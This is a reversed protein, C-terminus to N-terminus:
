WRFNVSWHALKSSPRRLEELVPRPLLDWQRLSEAPIKSVRLAIELIVLRATWWLQQDELLLDRCLMQQPSHRSARSSCCAASLLSLFFLRWREFFEWLLLISTDLHTAISYQMCYRYGIRNNNGQISKFLSHINNSRSCQRSNHATHQETKGDWTRGPYFSWVLWFSACKPVGVFARGGNKLLTRSNSRSFEAESFFFEPFTCYKTTSTMMPVLFRSSLSWCSDPNPGFIFFSFGNINGPFNTVTKQWFWIIGDFYWVLFLSCRVWCWVLFMDMITSLGVGHEADRVRETVPTIASKRDSQDTFTVDSLSTTVSTSQKKVQLRWSQLPRHNM